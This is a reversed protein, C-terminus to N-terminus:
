GGATERVPVARRPRRGWAILGSLVTLVLPLVVGDPALALHTVTAGLALATFALAALGALRPVLLAIAGVLELVAITIPFWVGVGMTDFLEMVHPARSLKAAAAVVFLVAAVVQAAWLAISAVRNGSRIRSNSTTTM